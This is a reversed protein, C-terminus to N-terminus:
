IKGFLKKLVSNYGRKISDNENQYYYGLIAIALGFVLAEGYMVGKVIGRRKLIYYGM